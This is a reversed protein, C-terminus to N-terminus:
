IATGSGFSSGAAMRAAFWAWGAATWVALEGNFALVSVTSFVLGLWFAMCSRCPRWRMGSAKRIISGLLHAVAALMIGAGIVNM